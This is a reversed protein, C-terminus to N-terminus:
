LYIFEDLEAHARSAVTLQTALPYYELTYLRMIRPYIIHM